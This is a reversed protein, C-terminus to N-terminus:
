KLTFSQELLCMHVYFNVNKYALIMLIFVFASLPLYMIINLLKNVNIFWVINYKGFINATITFLSIKFDHVAPLDFSCKSM